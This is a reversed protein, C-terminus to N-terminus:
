IYKKLFLFVIVVVFFVWKKLFVLNDALPGCDKIWFRQAQLIVLKGIKSLSPPCMIDIM